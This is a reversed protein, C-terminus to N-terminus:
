EKGPLVPDPKMCLALSLLGKDDNKRSSKSLTADEPKMRTTALTEMIKQLSLLTERHVSWISTWGETSGQAAVTKPAPLQAQNLYKGNVATPPCM